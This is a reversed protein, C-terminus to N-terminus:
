EKNDGSLLYSDQTTVSKHYGSGKSICQRLGPYKDTKLLTRGSSDRRRKGKRKENVRANM